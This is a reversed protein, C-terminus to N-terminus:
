GGGLMLRYVVMRLIQNMAAMVSGGLVAMRGIDFRGTAAVKEMFEKFQAYQNRGIIASWQTPSIRFCALPSKLCYGPGYELLRVWYDLDIVYPIRGDFGGVKRAVDARFLVASPEGIVNTGSRVCRQLITKGDVEGEPWPASRDFLRTGDPRIITRSCFALVAAANKELAAVEIALCDSSLLDDQHFLKVYKGSAAALARNWNGEPGIRENNRSFHIRTDDFRNHVVCSSDTSCDDFILLEFNTYSQALVSNIAETVYREGNFIPLCVSVLPRKEYSSTKQSMTTSKSFRKTCM